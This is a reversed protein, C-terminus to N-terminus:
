PIKQPFVRKVSSELRGIMRGNADFEFAIEIICRGDAKMVEREFAQVIIQEDNKSLIMRKTM